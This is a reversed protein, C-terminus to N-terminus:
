GSLHAKKFPIHQNKLLNVDEWVISSSKKLVFRGGLGGGPQQHKKTVDSGTMPIQLDCQIVPAIM